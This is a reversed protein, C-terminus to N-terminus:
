DGGSGGKGLEIQFSQKRVAVGIMLDRRERSWRTRKWEVTVRRCSM